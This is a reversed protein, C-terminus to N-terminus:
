TLTRWHDRQNLSDFLLTYWAVMWVWPHNPSHPEGPQSLMDWVLTHTNLSCGGVWNSQIIINSHVCFFTQTHIPLCAQFSWRSADAVSSASLWGGGGGGGAAARDISWLHWQSCCHMMHREPYRRWRPVYPLALFDKLVHSSKTLNVIIPKKTYPMCVVERMSWDSDASHGDNRDM